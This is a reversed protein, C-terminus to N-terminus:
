YQLESTHEESRSVPRQVGSPAGSWINALARLGPGVSGVAGRFAVPPVPSTRLVCAYLLLCSLWATLGPEREDRATEGAAFRGGDDLRVRRARRPNDDAKAPLGGAARRCCSGAVAGRARRRGSAPARTPRGSGGAVQPAGGFLMAGAPPVDALRALCEPGWKNRSLIEFHARFDTSPGSDLSITDVGVGAVNREAALFAAAEPSLGPFHMVGSDDPNLCQQASGARTEWGTYMCLAAGEPIRGHRREYALIDDVTLVTDPDKDARDKV